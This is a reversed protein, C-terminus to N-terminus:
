YILHMLAVPVVTQQSSVLRVTVAYQLVLVALTNAPGAIVLVVLPPHRLGFVPSYTSAACFRCADTCLCM